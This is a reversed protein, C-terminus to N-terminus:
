ISSWQWLRSHFFHCHASTIIKSYKAYYRGKDTINGLNHHISIQIILAPKLQRNTLEINSIPLQINASCFLLVFTDSILLILIQKKFVSWRFFLTTYGSSILSLMDYQLSAVTLGMGSSSRITLSSTKPYVGRDRMYSFHTTMNIPPVLQWFPGWISFRKKSSKPSRERRKGRAFLPCGINFFKWVAWLFGRWNPGGSKPRKWM